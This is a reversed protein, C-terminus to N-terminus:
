QTGHAPDSLKPRETQLSIIPIFFLPRLMVANAIVMSAIMTAEVM